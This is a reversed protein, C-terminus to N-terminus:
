LKTGEMPPGLILEWCGCSLPHRVVEQLGLELLLQHTERAEVPAQM